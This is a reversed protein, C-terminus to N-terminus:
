GGDDDQASYMDLALQCSDEGDRGNFSRDSMWWDWMAQWSGFREGAEWRGDRTRTEWLRQFALKWNREFLPWRAFQRERGSKRAMPCGICGLREFGEDYLSCYQLGRERIFAWVHETKWNLIPAVAWAHTRNHWTVHKWAKARRPSEEARVGFLLVVGLPTHGEKYKACCWRHLRTPPGRRALARFFNEPPKEWQVDDHHERIFYVLEPPDITTQNYHWQVNVGALRALEKIVVSDKGGSFAGYYPVGDAPENARLLAISQEVLAPLRYEPFLEPTM